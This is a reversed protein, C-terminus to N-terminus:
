FTGGELKGLWTGIAGFGARAVGAVDEAFSWNYTTVESIACRRLLGVRDATSPLPTV